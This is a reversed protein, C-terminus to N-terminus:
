FTNRWHWEINSLQTLEVGSATYCTDVSTLIFGCKLLFRVVTRFLFFNVSFFLKQKRKEGPAPAPAPAPATGCKSFLGTGTGCFFIRRRM